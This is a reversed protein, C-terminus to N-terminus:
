SESAGAKPARKRKGPFLWPFRLHWVVYMAERVISRGMKSVGDARDIFTIPIEKIRFRKKWTKYHMEIQFSYGNSGVADLDISELVVRRYCKFGATTDRIPMGTILRTYYSAAVSLLLRSLPWNVVNVGQIYRSGIVLDYNAAADLLRPLDNPNHSFDCDMEMIYPYGKELAFKFGVIYATGLGQKGEREILFVRENSGFRRKVAAGTGDPSGDDVILIDMRRPLALVTDIMREVNDIENYTPVIVLAKKEEADSM